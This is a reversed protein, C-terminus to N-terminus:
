WMQYLAIVLPMTLVCLMTTVGYIASAKQANNGFILAMQTVTAASPSITALFSIMAITEGNEVWGAFGCLKVIILLFIPILLLRLATILYIRKSSVISKLPISAILMGAILMANPGIFM